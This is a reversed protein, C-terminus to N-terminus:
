EERRALREELIQIKERLEKMRFERGIFLNNFRKLEENKVELENTRQKVIDELKMSHEELQKEIKKMDTLDVAQVIANIVKKNSNLVPTIVTKVTVHKGNLPAIHSVQKFDYDIIFEVTEGDNFVKEILPMHGSEKIINDKFLNYKGVVEEGNTGFLSKSAPNLSVLTGNSDSIWMSVSASEIITNLFTTKEKLDREIEKQHTIDRVIHVIGNLQNDNSLVPTVIVELWKGNTNIVMVEKHFSKFLRKSPCDPLRYDTKHFIENCKKNLIDEAQCNLMSLTAKNYQIIRSDTNLLCISDTISDFTSHWKNIVDHLEKERIIVQNYQYNLEKTKLQIQKKLLFYILLSIVALTFISISLFKIWRTLRKSRRHAGLHHRKSTHYISNENTKMKSLWSDIKGILFEGKPSRKVAAYSLKYPKLQIPAAILGYEDAHSNGYDKNTIVADVENNEIAVFSQKYTDFEKVNIKIDLRKTIDVLGNDGVLNLSGRMGAITLGELDYLSNLPKDKKTYVQFWSLIVHESFTFTKVRETTIGVDLFLDIEGKKLNEMHEDFSDFVYEVDWGEQLSIFDTIEAWVGKPTGDKGMFIKPPNDYIGIRVVEECFILGSLVLLLSITLIRLKM